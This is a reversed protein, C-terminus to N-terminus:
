RTPGGDEDVAARGQARGAPGEGVPAPQDAAERSPVDAPSARNRLHALLPALRARGRSCRSKVTGPPCGLIEAADDVSFGQVDVLVLAARQEIPLTTLAQEVEIAMDRDAIPDGPAAPQRAEDEPLPDTPRAQRRRVLDLCANVVIRHLWTTVAADGRFGGAARFASLFASQVADAADEPNGLTRVAVSWLRDQHRRVLEGFAQPDGAVHAALLAADSAPGDGRDGAGALEPDPVQDPVSILTRLLRAADRCGARDTHV